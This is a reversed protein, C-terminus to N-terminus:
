LIYTQLSHGYKKSTVALSKHNQHYFGYQRRRRRVQRTKRWWQVSISQGVKAATFTLVVYNEKWVKPEISFSSQQLFTWTKNYNNVNLLTYVTFRSFYYHFCWFSSLIKKFVVNTYSVTTNEATKGWIKM